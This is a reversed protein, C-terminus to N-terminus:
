KSTSFIVMRVILSEVRRVDDSSLTGDQKSGSVKRAVDELSIALYTEKLAAIRRMEMREMTQSILGLNKDEGFVAEHTKLCELLNNQNGISQAFDEYPRALHKFSRTASASVTAPLPSM